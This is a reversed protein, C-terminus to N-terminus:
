LAAMALWLRVNGNAEIREYSIMLIDLRKLTTSANIPSTTQRLFRTADKLLSLATSRDKYKQAVKLKQYTSEQLLTRADRVLQARSEFITEDHALTALLAPLGTAIFLLQQRKTADTVKLEDLLQNSQELTIPALQIMAVRSRITPLLREPAHSLLLFYTSPSPEELLKLFANQATLSMLDADDIVILRKTTSRSRTLDYLSRIAEASITGNEPRVVYPQGGIVELIGSFGIGEDGVMLTSQAPALAYHAIKQQTTPHLYIM